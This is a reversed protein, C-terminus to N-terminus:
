YFRIKRKSKRSRMNRRTKKRRMNKRKTNKRKTNKRGGQAPPPVLTSNRDTLPGFSISDDDFTYAWTGRGLHPNDSPGWHVERVERNEGDVIIKDGVVFRNVRQAMIGYAYM